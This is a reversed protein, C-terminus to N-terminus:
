VKKLILFKCCWLMGEDSMYFPTRYPNGVEDFVELFTGYKEILNTYQLLYHNLRKEDVDAVVDLYCLGLHMWISTGEYNKAFFSLFSSFQNPIFSTYKLPFPRDLQNEQMMACVKKKMEKDTFLGFWFPFVNADGTVYLTQPTERFYKGTWFIEQIKQKTEEYSEKRFSSKLGLLQAERQM